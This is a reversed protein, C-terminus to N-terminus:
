KARMELIEWFMERDSPDLASYLKWISFRLEDPNLAPSCSPVGFINGEGTRLWEERVRWQRCIADINRDSVARRGGEIESITTQALHLAAGFDAQRMHLIKKRLYRVRENVTM